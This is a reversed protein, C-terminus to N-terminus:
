TLWREIEFCSTPVDHECESVVDDAGVGSEILAFRGPSVSLERNLSPPDSMPGLM